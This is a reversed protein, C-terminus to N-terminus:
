VYVNYLNYINGYISNMEGLITHILSSKGAGVQGVIAVLQGPHLTLNIRTLTISPRTSHTTSTTPHDPDTIQIHETHQTNSDKREAFSDATTTNATTITLTRTPTAFSSHNIDANNISNATTTASDFAGELRREYEESRDIHEYSDHLLSLLLQAESAERSDVGKSKDEGSGVDHEAGITTTTSRSCLCCSVCKTLTLKLGDAGDDGGDGGTNGEGKDRSKRGGGSAEGSGSGSSTTTSTTKDWM